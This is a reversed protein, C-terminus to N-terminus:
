FLAKRKVKPEGRYKLRQQLRLFYSINYRLRENLDNTLLEINSGYRQIEEDYIARIEKSKNWYGEPLAPNVRLVMGKMCELHIGGNISTRLWTTSDVSTFPYAEMVKIVTIGFGHVKTEPAEKKIIDFFKDLAGYLHRTPTGVRGGFAIYPPKYGNYGQLMNYLADFPEAYHYSPVIKDWYERKVHDLMYCYNDWSQKASDMGGQTTKETPIVDLAAFLTVRPTNNIFDIYDDLTIKKGATHVSFAGSDMFIKGSTDLNEAVRKNGADAFSFLRHCDNRHFFEEMSNHKGGAFYLDFGMPKEKKYNYQIISYFYM